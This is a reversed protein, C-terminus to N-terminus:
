PHKSEYAKRFLSAGRMQRPIAMLRPEFDVLEASPVTSSVTVSGRLCVDACLGCQICDAAQFEVMQQQPDDSGVVESRRLARTPCALLCVGCGSCTEADISVSGFLRTTLPQGDPEGQACLADLVAMNRAPEFPAAAGGPAHMRDRLTQLTRQRSQALVDDLAQEAATRAVSKAMGGARTFLRRREAARVSQGDDAQACLPFESTREFPVPREWAELLTAAGEIAADIAREVAGYRCTACGGDVLVVQQAGQCALAVLAAETLRGFCPLEAFREPDGQKRAAKRACAIVAVGDCAAMTRTVQLAVDEALPKAGVLASGPCAGVCAGCNVCLTADISVQNEGVTVADAICVEECRRCTANRNRVAVCRSPLVAIPSGQLSEAVAVIDALSPM